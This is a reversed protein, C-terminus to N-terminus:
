NCVGDIGAGRAPDCVVTSEVSKLSFGDGGDRPAGFVDLRVGLVSDDGLGIVDFTVEGLDDVTPAVSMRIRSEPDTSAMADAVIRGLELM